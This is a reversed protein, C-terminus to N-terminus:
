SNVMIRLARELPMKGTKVKREINLTQKLLKELRTTSMRACEQRQFHLRGPSIGLLSAQQEGSYREAESLKFKLHRTLMTEMLAVLGLHAEKNSIIKELENNAKPTNGWALENIFKFSDHRSRCEENILEITIAKGLTSLRKLESYLKSSDETGIHEVLHEAEVGRVVPISTDEGLISKHIDSVWIAAAKTDWPSFEKFEEFVISPIKTKLQKVLKITGNVKDSEFIVIVNEPIQSLTQIIQEVESDESKNELFKFNKIHIVKTSNGWAPTQVLNMLDMLSPNVAQNFNFGEMGPELYKEKLLNLKLQRRFNDKGHLIFHM